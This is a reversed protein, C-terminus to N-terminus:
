CHKICFCRRRFGRCRSGSFGETHCVNACNHTSVSLGRFKHSKSECTRAKVTVPGAGSAIFIMFMFLVVSILPMCLMM